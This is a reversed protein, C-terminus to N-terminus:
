IGFAERLEDETADVEADPGEGYDEACARSNPYLYMCPGETIACEWGHYEDTRVACKCGMLKVRGVTIQKNVEYPKELLVDVDTSNCGLIMFLIAVLVAIRKM